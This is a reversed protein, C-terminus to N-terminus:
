RLISLISARTDTWIVDPGRKARLPINRTLESMVKPDRALLAWEARALHRGADSPSESLLCGFGLSSASGCVVRDVSLYRNSVNALLVGDPALQRAYVAFADRTLLHVPVSDSTFADLVLVDFAHAPERELELRGDGVVLQIEATSDALFSFDRKAIAVVNRDLEYFLFVDGPRGYCAITGAGLGLVGIRRARDVHYTSLVHGLVTDPGFYLTPRTREGPDSLQFGHQIRGHTLMRGDPLQVVKLPGLFGRSRSLVKGQLNETQARVLVNAGLLPVCVGSGLFLLLRETHGWADATRRRAALLLLVFTSIAGIELEYYDNFVLPAVLSVFAGGLAGGSAILVYYRTLERVPPRSRALEGHCLMASAFLALLTAGVQRWLPARAQAFANLGLGIAGLIWLGLVPGRWAPRWVSFAIIFTTLYLALPVVWLLPMAAIDVTIHNTAALLMVSPVFALALWRAREVFSSAAGPPEPVARSPRQEARQVSLSAWVLGLAFVWFATAWLSRQRELGLAPELLFPYGLLGVLSGANSLAYLAYPSRGSVLGAWRQILPATTSLVFFPLGVQKLLLWPIALAPTVAALEPAGASPALYLALAASVVVVVHFRVQGKPQLRTSVVHAYVYGALLLVQYFLMCATWVGPSGGVVPLLWKALMPQVVFLLLAGFFTILAFLM